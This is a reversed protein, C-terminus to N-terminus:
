TREKIALDEPAIKFMITDNKIKVYSLYKMLPGAADWLKQNLLLRYWLRRYLPQDAKVLGDRDYLYEADKLSFFQCKLLRLNYDSEPGYFSGTSKRVHRYDHSQHFAEIAETCDILPIRRLRANFLMWNDWGARGILFPPIASFSDKKFIFYDVAWVASRKGRQRLDLVVDDFKSPDMETDLDVDIRRGVLLFRDRGVGEVADTIGSYIMDSNSFCLVDFHARDNATRFIDDLFPTGFENKRVDSVHLVGIDKAAEAIGEEDGFLIIECGPVAEKWARIANRQIIGIHGIFPKPVTFFTIM